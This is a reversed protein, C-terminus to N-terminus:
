GDLWWAFGVYLRDECLVVREGEIVRGGLLGLICDIKVGIWERVGEVM